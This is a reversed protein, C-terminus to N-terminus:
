GNQQKIIQKLGEFILAPYVRNIHKSYEAVLGADGGTALVRLSSGCTKRFKSILGDCMSAYGYLIGNNMSEKTNKGVFRKTPKIDVRPLLATDKVLSGLALRLGPFILGGEYEGKKNVYDMTVATGFDIVVFPPKVINKAAYSTVLRDQGVEEPKKYLNNIPVKINKGVVMVSIGPITKKLSRVIINTFGPVVSVILASEVKTLYKELLRKISVISIHDRSSRIFYRKVTRDGKVVEIATNTNGIDILLYM